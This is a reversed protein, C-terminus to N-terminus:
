ASVYWECLLRAGSMCQCVARAGRVCERVLGGSM